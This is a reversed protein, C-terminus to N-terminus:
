YDISVREAFDYARFVRVIFNRQNPLNRWSQLISSLSFFDLAFSFSEIRPFFVCCFTENTKREYSRGVGIHEDDLYM